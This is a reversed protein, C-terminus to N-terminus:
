QPKSGSKLLSKLKLALEPIDLQVTDWIRDIDIDFYVHILRNRMGIIEAWPVQDNQQQTEKSVRSAAEGIIEVLKLLSLTLQRDQILDEVRKGKIFSAIEDAADIMHRIRILDPQNM